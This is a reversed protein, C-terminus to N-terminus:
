LWSLSRYVSKVAFCFSLHYRALSIISKIDFIFRYLLAIVFCYVFRYVFRYAALSDTTSYSLPVEGRPIEFKGRPLEPGVSTM